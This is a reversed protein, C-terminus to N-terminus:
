LEGQVRRTHVNYRAKSVEAVVEGKKVSDGEQYNLLDVLGRVETSMTASQFPYIVANIQEPRRINLDADSGAKDAASTPKLVDAQSTAGQGHVYPSGALLTVAVVAMVFFGLVENMTM